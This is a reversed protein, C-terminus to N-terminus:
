RSGNPLAVRCVNNEYDGDQLPDRGQGEGQADFREDKIEIEMDSQGPNKIITAKENRIPNTPDNAVTQLQAAIIGLLVDTSALCCRWADPVSSRM